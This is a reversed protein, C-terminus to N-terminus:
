SLRERLQLLINTAGFPISNVLTGTITVGRTDYWNLAIMYVLLDYLKNEKQEPVGAGKLYEISALLQGNLGADDDDVRAYERFGQLGAM